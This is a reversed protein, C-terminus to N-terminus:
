YRRRVWVHAALWCACYVPLAFMIPIRPAGALELWGWTFCLLSGLAFAIALSETLIRSQLEDADRAFRAVAWAVGIMPPVLLAVAALRWPTEPFRHLLFAVLPTLVVYAGMAVGFRMLYARDARTAM